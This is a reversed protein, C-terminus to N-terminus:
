LLGKEPDILHTTDDNGRLQQRYWRRKLLKQQAPEPIETFQITQKEILLEILDDLVRIFQIDLDQSSSNQRQLFQRVEESDKEMPQWEPSIQKEGVAVVAGTEDRLGYFM